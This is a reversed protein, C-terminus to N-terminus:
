KLFYLFEAVKAKIWILRTASHGGQTMKSRTWGPKGIPGKRKAGRASMEGARKILVRGLNSGPPAPRAPAAFGTGRSPTAETTMGPGSRLRPLGSHPTGSHRLSGGQV